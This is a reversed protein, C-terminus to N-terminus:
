RRKRLYFAHEDKLHTTLIEFGDDKVLIMEEFMASNKGDRTKATWGTNSDVWGWPDSYTLMPELCIVQGTKLEVDMLKQYKEVMESERYPNPVHYIFPQEHMERGIAHGCFQQNIVFKREDARRKMAVALEHLTVGAKIKMIGTYLVNKAYHLLIKDKESIEGVPLTLASDGCNGDEDIVGLDINIIDGEKLVRQSPVGHAIESNISTCLVAPYPFRAWKPHYNKNYSFGGLEKLFQEALADLTFTTVGPRVHEKLRLLITSVLEPAKM